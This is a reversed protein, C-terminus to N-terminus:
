AAADEDDFRDIAQAAPGPAGFTTPRWDPLSGELAERLGAVTKLGTRGNETALQLLAAKSMCGLFEATDFRPLTADAGIAAGIWEAPAGSGINTVPDTVRLMRSLAQVALGILEDEGITRFTGGPAVVEAALDHFHARGFRNSTRDNITVNDGSLAVILAACLSSLPLPWSSRIGDLRSDIGDTKLDALLSQGRKTLAGEFAEEAPTVVDGAGAAASADGASGEDNGAEAASEAPTSVPASRDIAAQEVIGGLGYGEERVCLFLMEAGKAPYRKKIPGYTRDWGKPLKLGNKTWSALTVREKKKKRADVQEALAANQAEIFGVTDTTTFQEDSGPEAFLDEEFLVPSTEVDFIALSRSIRTDRCSRAIVEIRDDPRMYDRTARLGAIQREIPASAILSLDDTDPLPHGVMLDLIEPAIHGLKDLQRARRDSIGLAGAAHQLTYGSGQLAVIARWQDVPDMPVRVMNEAAQIAAFVGDSHSPLVEAPIEEFGAARACRVRRHGAVILFRDTTEPARRVLVPQLVGLSGISQQLGADQEATAAQRRLNHGNEDILDLRIMSM